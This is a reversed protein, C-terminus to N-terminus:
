LEFSKEQVIAYKPWNYNETYEKIEKELYAEAEMRTSLHPMDWIMGHNLKSLPYWYTDRPEKYEVDYFVSGDKEKCEQIRTMIKMKISKVPESLPSKQTRNLLSTLRKILHIM